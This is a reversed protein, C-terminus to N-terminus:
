AKLNEKIREFEEKTIEGKAYRERAIELARDRGEGYSGGRPELGVFVLYVGVIIVILFIIGGLPMWGWGYGMMHGMMGGGAMILFAFGVVVIVLVFWIVDREKM